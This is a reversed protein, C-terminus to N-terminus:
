GQRLSLSMLGKIYFVTFKEMNLGMKFSSKNLDTPILTNVSCRATESYLKISITYKVQLHNKEIAADVNMFRIGFICVGSHLDRYM